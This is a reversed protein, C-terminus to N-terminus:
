TRQELQAHSFWTRTIADSFAPLALDLAALLDDFAARAALDEPFDFSHVDFNFLRLATKEVRNQRESPWEASHLMRALAHSHMLLDQIQFCLSRPNAEDNMLLDLVPAPQLATLYRSRYTMASDCVELLIELVPWTEPGVHVLLSRFLRILQIGREIRRGLTLFHWGPGRTINEMEIGRLSALSALCHNLVVLADGPSVYGWAADSEV